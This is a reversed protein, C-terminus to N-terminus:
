KRNLKRQQYLNQAIDKVKQRIIKGSPTMPFEDVFYVGGDLHKFKALQDSISLFFNIAFLDNLIFIQRNAFM